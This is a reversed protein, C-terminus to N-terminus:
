NWLFVWNWVDAAGIGGVRLASGPMMPVICPTVEL